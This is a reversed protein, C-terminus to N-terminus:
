RRPLLIPEAMVMRPAASPLQDLVGAALGPVGALLM